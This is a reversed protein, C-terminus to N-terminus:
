RDPEQLQQLAGVNEADTLFKLDLSGMPVPRIRKSTCTSRAGTKASLYQDAEVPPKAIPPCGEMKWRVWNKDRSLVTEVMRYYFKGSEGAQLHDRISLRMKQAWEIDADSLTFSYQLARQTIVNALRGRSKETLSLLFDILILAQVLIHRQFALDSLELSFLERSTLYKPNYTSAFDDVAEGAKRKLSAKEQNPAAQIVRPVRQFMSLTAELGSKFDDLYQSEFVTPPNSFAKQLTWFVPYLEDISMESKEEVAAEGAKGDPGSVTVSVSEPATSAEPDPMPTDNVDGNSEAIDPPEALKPAAEFTTVNETHFEGRLNVSSKDGLPFSQFLFIYVRGCFVTDEARSLRRLLENCTRLVTLKKKDFDKSTLRERRSDLYNFVIRCGEIMQSDLLEEILAWALSAECQGQDGCISLIDLLNWVDVFAPDRVDNSCLTAQFLRRAATEVLANHNPQRGPLGHEGTFDAAPLPPELETQPKIQRARALLENLKAVADELSPFSIATMTGM